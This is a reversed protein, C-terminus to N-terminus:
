QSRAVGPFARTPLPASQFRLVCDSLKKGCRDQPAEVVNGNADFYSEEAYPCTAKTYDFTLTDPDWRRYKHTCANRLIPRQPLYVGSQDTAASLEWEILKNNHTRKRNIKYVDVPFFQEPDAYPQGDLYRRFTRKRTVTAGKLDGFAIVAAGFGLSVNSVRLIPQPLASRGGWEWGDSDVPIPSYLNGGFYVPASEFASSTFRYVDGGIVTADIEYLVVYDDTEPRQVLANIDVIDLVSVLPSGASGFAVIGDLRLGTKVTHTLGVAQVGVLFVDQDHQPILDAASGVAELGFLESTIELPASFEGVEGTAAVGLLTTAFFGVEGTSAVGVLAGTVTDFFVGVGSSSAVGSFEVPLTPSLVGSVAAASVGVLGIAASESLTGVAGTASVGVLDLAPHYAFEGLQGTAEVGFLTTAFFGTEGVSSVGVLVKEEVSFFIGVNGTSVVGDLSLPLTPTFVGVSGVAAVGASSGIELTGLVGPSGVGAVGALATQTLEDLAGVASTAAVGALSVTVPNIFSGVSGIASVGNFISTDTAINGPAATASVGSLVVTDVVGLSGPSCTAAVGTVAGSEVGSFSGVSGTASVGVGAVLLASGGESLAAESVSSFGLM